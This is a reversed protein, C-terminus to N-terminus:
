TSISSAGDYYRLAALSYDLERNIVKISARTLKRVQPNRWTREKPLAVLQIARMGKTGAKGRIQNWRKLPIALALGHPNDICLLKPTRKPLDADAVYGHDFDGQVSFMRYGCSPCAWGSTRLRRIAVTPIPHKAALEFYTRRSRGIMKVPRWTVCAQEEKSLLSRFRDSALRIIPLRLGSGLLDGDGVSGVPLRKETRAGIGCCCSKCLGGEYLAAYEERAFGAPPRWDASWTLTVLANKEATSQLPSLDFVAEGDGLKLCVVRNLEDLAEDLSDGRANLRPRKKLWVKYVGRTRKWKCLYVNGESM